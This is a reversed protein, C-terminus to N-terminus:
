DREATDPRGTARNVLIGLASDGGSLAGRLIDEETIRAMLIERRTVRRYDYCIYVTGDEGQAADPYAAHERRDLLLSWPWTAGDDESLYATLDTRGKWKKVPAAQGAIEERTLAPGAAAHNVLLLRGSRLRSLHFLSCPGELGSKRGPTWTEGGDHSFSEGIGGFTRCLMWLSGDRRQLVTHEDFQRDPIDAHGCLAVTEGRDRSRYINSFQEGRLEPRVAYGQVGCADQWLCCPFLWDGNSLVTPKHSMMGNAIRRPPSWDRARRDPDACVSCWVGQRGDHWGYSQTWFLWLRGLPDLWLLGGGTVCAPDPHVVALVPPSFSRGRDASTVVLVYMGQGEEAHGSLFSVWLTGGPTTEVSACGQWRRNEDRFRPDAPSLLIQAPEMAPERSM